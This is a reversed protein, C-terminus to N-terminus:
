DLTVSTAFRCTDHPLAGVAPQSWWETMATGVRHKAFEGAEACLQLTAELSLISEAPLVALQSASTLAHRCICALADGQRPHTGQHM